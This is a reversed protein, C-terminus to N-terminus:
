ELMEFEGCDCHCLHNLEAEPDYLKEERQDDHGQDAVHDSFRETPVWRNDVVVHEDCDKRHKGQEVGNENAKSFGESEM